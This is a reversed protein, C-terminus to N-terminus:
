NSFRLIGGLAEVALLVLSPSDSLGAVVYLVASQMKM